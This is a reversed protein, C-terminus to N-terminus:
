LNEESGVQQLSSSRLWLSPWGAKPIVCILKGKIQQLAVPDLDIAENNDGKTKYKRSDLIEVVRHTIFYNDKRFHIVDGTKIEEKDIKKLITVDGPHILPEMSGTAIVSPYFPFVGAAFWIILISLASVSLWQGYGEKKAPSRELERAAEQYLYQTLILCAFPVISGLLTQTVWGLNPLRPSFLQFGEVVARYILAPLPGGLYALYSVLLSESLGPMLTTGSFNVAQQLTKLGGLKSLSLEPLLFFLSVLVILLHPKRSPLGNILYARALEMGLIVAALSLFNSLIAWPTFAYPSKGFGEIFGGIAMVILYLVGCLLALIRLLRQLRLRGAARPRPLFWILLALGLWGLATVLRTTQLGMVTGAVMNETFYIIGLCLLILAARIKM